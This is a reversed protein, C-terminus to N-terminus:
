ADLPIYPPWGSGGCLSPLWKTLRQNPADGQGGGTLVFCDFFLRAPTTGPERLQDCWRADCDDVESVVPVFSETAEIRPSQAAIGVQSRASPSHRHVQSVPLVRFMLGLGLWVWYGDVLM